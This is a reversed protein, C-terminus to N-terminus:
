ADNGQALLEVLLRSATVGDVLLNGDVISLEHDSLQACWYIKGDKSAQWSIPLSDKLGKFDGMMVQVALIQAALLNSVSVEVPLSSSGEAIPVTKSAPLGVSKAMSKPQVSANEKDTSSPLTSGISRELKSQEEMEKRREMTFSWMPCIMVALLHQALLNSRM